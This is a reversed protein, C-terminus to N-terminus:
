DSRSFLLGQSDDDRPKQQVKRIRAEFESLKVAIQSESKAIPPRVLESPAAEDEECQGNRARRRTYRAGKRLVKGVTATCEAIADSRYTYIVGVKTQLNALDPAMTWSYMELPLGRAKAERKILEADFRFEATQPVEAIARHWRIYPSFRAELLKDFADWDHNLFRDSNFNVARGSDDIGFFIYGGANNAFACMTKMYKALKEITNEFLLKFETEYGEEPLLSLPSTRAWLLAQQIRWPSIPEEFRAHDIPRVSNLRETVFQRVVGE